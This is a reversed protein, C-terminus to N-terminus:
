DPMILLCHLTGTADPKPIYAIAVLIDSGEAGYDKRLQDAPHHM